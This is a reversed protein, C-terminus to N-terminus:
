SRASRVYCSTRRSDAIRKLVSMPSPRNSIGSTRRVNAITAALIRIRPSGEIGTRPPTWYRFHASCMRCTPRRPRTCIPNTSSASNRVGLLGLCRIVEDELLELMRRVGEEGKAALAWCAASASSIPAWRSRRSSTAAEASAATSWSKRAAPSRRQGM